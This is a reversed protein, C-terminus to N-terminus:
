EEVKVRYFGRESGLRGADTDNWSTRDSTAFIGSALAQWSASELSSSYEISYSKGFVTQWTLSRNQSTEQIATIALYENGNNPDTGAVFEEADNTYDGDRNSQADATELNGFSLFEWHDAMQDSDSDIDVDYLLAIEEASLAQNYIQVEDVTVPGFWNGQNQQDESSYVVL